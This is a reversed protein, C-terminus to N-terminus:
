SYKLIEEGCNGCKGNKLKPKAERFFGGRQIVLYNCKPCFTNHYEPHQINGLFVYKLGEERAIQHAELLTQEPTPPLHQLEYDPHFRSFHVPVRDDLNEVVWKAMSRIKNMDDNLTPIILNTLEIHIGLKHALKCTKLVPELKAKCTKKYFSRNFAKVDINMADLYPAIKKLPKPNIFGNTVYVTYLGLSKAHKSGYYTYEFWITPENYTWAVGKCGRSRALEVAAEPPTSDVLSEEPKRQSTSYNQCQKCKLNCGVTGFSLVMSGPYFHYLPKKEIPDAAGMSTLGFVLTKLQGGVNKRVTCVGTKGESISCNHPCLQCKVKGDEGLVWFMADKLGSKYDKKQLLGM